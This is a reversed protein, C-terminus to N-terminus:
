YTYNVIVQDTQGYAVPSVAGSGTVGFAYILKRDASRGNFATTTTSAINTVNACFATTDHCLYVLLGSPRYSLGWSYSVSTITATAPISGVPYLNLYYWIGKSYLSPGVGSNSWAGAAQAEVLPMAAQPDNGVGMPAVQIETAPVWEAVAVVSGTRQSESYSPISYVLCSILGLLYVLTRMYIKM